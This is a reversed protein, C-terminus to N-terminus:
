FPGAALWRELQSRRDNGWFLEGDVTFSPAGFVGAAIAEDNARKLRAKWHADNWAAEAADADLGQAAALAKLAPAEHLPVSQVFVARLGAAAWAAAAAESQTDHLWWFVRAANQTPIPFQPPPAYALGEFRASRLFDRLVYERKLPHAVPPKLEAAQFTAGLLIAHRRVNRGHRAALADIWGNAIYSYPSSFDFHFDIAGNM